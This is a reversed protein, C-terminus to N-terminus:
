NSHISSLASIFFFRRDRRILCNMQCCALGALPHPPSDHDIVTDKQEECHEKNNDTDEPFQNNM